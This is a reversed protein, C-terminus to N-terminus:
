NIKPVRHGHGHEFSFDVFLGNVAFLMHWLTTTEKISPRLRKLWVGSGFCSYEVYLFVEEYQSDATEGLLVKRTVHFQAWNRNGRAADLNAPLLGPQACKSQAAGYIEYRLCTLSFRCATSPATALATITIYSVQRPRALPQDRSRKHSSSINRCDEVARCRVSVTFILLWTVM